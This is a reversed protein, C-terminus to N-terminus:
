KLEWEKWDMEEGSLIGLYSIYREESIEGNKVAEIIACKPENVHICNNFKCDNMRERIEPFYHGVEEKKMEVLGLEKIGPSDIINGGFSLPHLEAFTTTHMGKAHAASIEGTKITLTPELANIFTSKGVGSHGAVLTIKDKFLHELKKIQELNYSSVEFCEYGIKTYIDITKKQIAMQEENLLDCKNFIIKAPIRYAEATILFRDIFGLSTRPSVLTAILVAQDLNSAIIQSQKSLNISKRIIYNKRPHIKVINAENNDELEFDVIDGVAIPNTTKRGELRIKGKLRCLYVVNNSRVFYSSGTSKIVLGEM